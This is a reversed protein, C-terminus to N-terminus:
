GLQRSVQRDKKNCLNATGALAESQSLLLSRQSETDTTMGLNVSVSVDNASTSDQEEEVTQWSLLNVDADNLYSNSIESSISEGVVLSFFTDRIADTCLVCNSLVNQLIIRHKLFTYMYM